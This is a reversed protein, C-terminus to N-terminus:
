PSVFSPVIDDIMAKKRMKKRSSEYSASTIYQKRKGLAESSQKTIAQLFLVDVKFPEQWSVNLKNRGEPLLFLVQDGIFLTRSKTAQDNVAQKKAETAKTKTAFNCIKSLRVRMQRINQLM